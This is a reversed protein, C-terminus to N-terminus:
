AARRQLIPLFDISPQEYFDIEGNVLASMATQPDSIWVLEIRDVNPIKSGAFATPPENGPRPVYDANKLYVTKSGPVWQEKAFKFPGSGIAETIQTNPDTLAEKERMIVPVSTGTKGLTELVMGYPEKLVLRFSKDDIAELKDTFSMLRQGASDKAGWRKLSAIVDKTTVPSGDHFKLRDRLKFTYTKKDPSLEYTDVMQPKPRDDEDNGFLTDYVLMAHIGAITQTTWFPDLTRVDAHMVARLVKEQALAQPSSWCVGALAAVVALYRAKSALMATM